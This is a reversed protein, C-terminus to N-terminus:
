SGKTALVPPFVLDRWSAPARGPLQGTRSMFYATRMLGRPRTTYTIAPNGIWQKFQRPTPNGGADKALLNAVRQPNTSVLKIAAQIDRYVQNAFATNQNYFSQTVVTGLFTHAGFYQYSRAVVHAGRVREQFQFPPSTLHADIQGAILAQMADPHDMTVISADLARADGLKAQAMKRLVVAQISTPGPMAIRKGRLDAITRIAPDKAMLWLDGENLPALLKWDIGRAWGLLFPGTGMAAVHVQGSIVGNTIAAGSPLVRWEFTTNPYRRELTRQEKLVILPAYGMGPQYAIVVKSPAAVGGGSATSGGAVAALLAALVLLTLRLGKKM